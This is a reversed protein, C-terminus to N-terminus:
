PRDADGAGTNALVVWLAVLVIVGGLIILGGRQFINQIDFGGGTTGIRGPLGGNSLLNGLAQGVGDLFNRELGQPAAGNGTVSPWVNALAEELQGVNGTNLDSDLSRGTKSLYTEQALYWAGAQQDLPNEFNLGYRSAVDRWTAPQFQFTGAAHTNGVGNWQPFGWQDRAVGSLDAGGYGIWASGTGGGTEGLALASLFRAQEPDNPDYAVLDSM